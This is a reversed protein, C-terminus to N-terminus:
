TAMKIGSIIWDFGTLGAVKESNRELTALAEMLM